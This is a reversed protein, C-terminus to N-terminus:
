GNVKFTIYEDFYLYLKSTPYYQKLGSLAHFGSHCNPCINVVLQGGDKLRVPYHHSDLRIVNSHCWECKKLPLNLNNVQIGKCTSNELLKVIDRDSLIFYTILELKLLKLYIKNITEPNNSIVRPLFYKYNNEIQRCLLMASITSLEISHEKALEVSFFMNGMALIDKANQTLIPKNVM